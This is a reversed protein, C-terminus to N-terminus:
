GERPGLSAAILRWRAREQRFHETAAEPTSGLVPDLGAQALSQQFELDALIEQTKANLTEIISAPTDKPAFIGFSMEAIFNPLGAEATTPIEPAGALRKASTAALIKIKGARHLEITPTTIFVAQMQVVGAVLDNFAGAGTRYPVHLIEPLGAQQRFQEMILHSMTGAGVSAYNLKSANVKAYDILESLTNVPLGATVAVSGTSIAITSIPQFDIEADFSLKRQLLPVLVIDSTSGLLLSYGDPSAKAANAMGIVGGAGSINEIYVSGGIAKAIGNCWHRGVVDLVGGAGRPIILRVSREPYKALAPAAIAAPVLSALSGALFDRRRM